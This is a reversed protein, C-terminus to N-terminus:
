SLVEPAANLHKLHFIGLIYFFMSVKHIQHTIVPIMNETGPGNVKTSNSLIQRAGHSRHFNPTHNKGQFEITHYSGALM